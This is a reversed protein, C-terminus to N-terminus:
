GPGGARYYNGVGKACVGKGVHQAFPGQVGSTRLMVLKNGPRPCKLRKTRNTKNAM